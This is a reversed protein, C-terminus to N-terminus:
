VWIAARITALLSHEVGRAALRDLVGTDGHSWVEQIPGAAIYALDDESRAETILALLIDDRTAHDMTASRVADWVKQLDGREVRLRQLRDASRAADHHEFYRRALAHPDVPEEDPM